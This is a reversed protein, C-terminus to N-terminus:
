QSLAGTVERGRHSQPIPVQLNYDSPIVGEGGREGERM